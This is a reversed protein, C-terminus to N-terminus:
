RLYKQINGDQEALTKAYIIKGTQPDSLYYWYPSATPNEAAMISSTGPNGIPGPPLGRYLYTNYPSDIKFDASPLTACNTVAEPETLQNAYCVTADIDLPMNTGTRKLIIGAILRQDSPLGAEKELMSAITLTSTTSTTKNNELIPGAKSNFNDAFTKLIESVPEGNQFQYTDPFLRGELGAAGAAAAFSGQRVVLADALMKDIQFMNWGEPITVTVTRNTDTLVQAIELPSMSPSLRYLGPQFSAAVGDVMSFVEFAWRSRVIGDEQLEAAIATFGEGPKIEVTVQEAGGVSVPRLELFFTALALLAVVVIGIRFYKSRTIGILM